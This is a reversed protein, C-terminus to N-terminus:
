YGGGWGWLGGLCRMLIWTSPRSLGHPSLQSQSFMQWSEIERPPRYYSSSCTCTRSPCTFLAGPAPRHINQKIPTHQKTEARTSRRRRSGEAKRGKVDDMLWSRGDGKGVTISFERQLLPQNHKSFFYFFLFFHAPLPAFTLAVTRQSLLPPSLHHYSSTTLM